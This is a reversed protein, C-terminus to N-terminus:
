LCFYGPHDPRRGHPTGANQHQHLFRGAPHDNLARHSGPKNYPEGTSVDTHFVEIGDEFATMTQRTRNVLLKKLEPPVDPSLPTIEEPQILRMHHAPVFYTIPLLDYRIGYAPQGNPGYGVETM